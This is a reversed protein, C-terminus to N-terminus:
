FNAEPPAFASQPPRDDSPPAAAEAPSAIEAPSAAELTSTALPPAIDSSEPLPAAEPPSLLAVPQAPATECNSQREDGPAAAADLVSPWDGSLLACVALLRRSDPGPSLQECRRAQRVALAIRGSELAALCQSRRRRYTEATARLLRLDSKCRRCADSWEQRAGCTPCALNNQLLADSM